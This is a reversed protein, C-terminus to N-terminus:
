DEFSGSHTGWWRAIMARLVWNLAQFHQKKMVEREFKDLFADVEGLGDYTPLDRVETSVCHLSRTMINCNLTTVEHLRNQWSKIEEDSNSTYSSEREWSIQGDTTPNVWDQEGTTIKYICDLDDDCEYDRVPETYCSGETPDLPIVIRLSKKEFIMKRKKLNIVGNMDTTWDIGLLTPYPNNDDVIEIVEFDALM